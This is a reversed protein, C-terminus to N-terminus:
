RNTVLVIDDVKVLVKPVTAVQEALRPLNKEEIFVLLKEGFPKWLESFEEFTYLVRGYGPAPQPRKKAIYSSGMLRSKQGSWVVWIPRDISLYFPLSSLYADYIVIQDKPGIVRASKEALEKSSRISSISGTIASLFLFLVCFGLCSFCYPGDLNASFRMGIALCLFILGLLLILTINGQLIQLGRPPIRLEQPLLDALYFSLVTFTFLTSLTLWPLSFVWNKRRLSDEFVRTLSRGALISLPPYIVLIYHPAKSNSLSFFLLPVLTWVILFLIKDDSLKNWTEKVIIPILFTWPLFGVALVGLFFYWPAGREFHSTFFRLFNEEFLFYSLYGPNKIESWAYGALVLILFVPLGLFFEWDRILFWRRSLFLYICIVAGPLLLGVPGKALFAIGTAGWMLGYFLRGYTTRETHSGWYFSCLSLTIFFVLVMEAIVIRSLVFYETSTVLILSSWLAGWPGLLTRAILYILLGCGLGGLASPLRASWESVGFIKFSLAAPWYFFVPKDLRPLFNYYPTAWDNILLIERAVEANRGEDPEFLAPGGLDYFFIFYCLLLFVFVSLRNEFPTLSRRLTLFV